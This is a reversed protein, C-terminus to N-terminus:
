WSLLGSMSYAAERGKTESESASEKHFIYLERVGINDLEEVHQVAVASEREDELVALLDTAGGVAQPSRQLNRGDNRGDRRPRQRSTRGM